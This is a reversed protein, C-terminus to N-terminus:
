GVNVQVVHYGTAGDPLVDQVAEIQPLGSADYARASLRHPGSTADWPLYWQRWYDLGVDPGLQTPTWPGNDVQVEVKGVGRHTAWAVGAIVTRGPKIREQPTDIRTATKVPGLESWGRQTWYAEDAAFTSVKLRNIWKTAGVYGYLGPTVLRAPFGHVQTLPQGDMAIAIMADRGDLLVALPTSATFGDVSSSLVQDAGANPRARRLLDAVRVGLFRTSSIYPGGIPDSVCTLTIDHEIMPMALLEAWTLTYPAAVMGDIQLTWTDTSVRPLVLATDIRYFDEIPTRLPSVDPVTAELGVPFAPAPTAATPLAVPTSATPSTAGGGSVAAAAGAAVVGAAGTLLVRRDIGTRTDPGQGPRDALWRLELRLVGLAVATGVISPLWDLQGSAPRTAAALVGILGIAAFVGYGVAPRRVALVGAVASLLAVGVVVTGILVAKDATGLTAVAWEKLPTPVLDVIAAGVAVIPASAPNVMVAALQGAAAGLAAAGIGAIASGTRSM